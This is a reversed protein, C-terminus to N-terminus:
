SRYSTTWWILMSGGGSSFSSPTDAGSVDVFRIRETLAAPVGGLLRNVPEVGSFLFSFRLSSFMSEGAEQYMRRCVLLPLLLTSTLPLAPRRRQRQTTVSAGGGGTSRYCASYAREFSRDWKETWREFCAKHLCWPTDPQGDDITRTPGGPGPAIDEIAGNVDGPDDQPQPQQPQEQQQEEAPQHQGGDAALAQTESSSSDTTTEEAPPAPNRDWACADLICPYSQLYSNKGFTYIHQTIGCELWLQLYIQRRVDLPLATFLPSQSQDHAPTPSPQAAQPRTRPHNWM